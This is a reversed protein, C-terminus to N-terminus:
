IEVEICDGLDKFKKNRALKRAAMSDAMYILNGNKPSVMSAPFRGKKDLLVKEFIEAKGAGTIIFIINEANNIVPMTLSIREYQIHPQSVGATLGFSNNGREEPADAFLSAIHGDSGLGLLIFNFRPLEGKNLKFFKSLKKEYQQCSSALSVTNTKIPHINKQPIDIYSILAESIMRFNNNKDDAPLYREDTIFIHTKSWLSFDKVESLRCYFELPSRGGTLAATFCKNQKIAEKALSVWLKVLHNALTHPNEFILIKRM